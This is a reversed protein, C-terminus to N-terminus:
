DRRSRLVCAKDPVSASTVFAFSGAHAAKAPLTPTALRGAFPRHWIVLNNAQSSVLQAAAARLTALAAAELTGVLDFAAGALPVLFTRGRVRHGDVVIPTLWNAIAGTPASYAGAASGTPVSVAGGAWSGTLAGNTAEIIDGSQEVTMTTNAPILPAAAAFFAGVDARAGVADLAYFTSVGPMGTIGGWIVRLRQIQAM